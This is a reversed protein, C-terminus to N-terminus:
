RSGGCGGVLPLRMVVATTGDAYYRPRRDIEVLGHAAYFALAGSNDERVEVLMRDAGGGRAHTRVADLLSSAVGRRRHAGAVGIRQLDAIDGAVSVVAHGVPVDGEVAVLYAVTPLDGSLGQEVLGAPWADEGLCERELAAVAPADDPGAARVIM